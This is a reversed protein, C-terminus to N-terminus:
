QVAPVATRYPWQTLVSRPVEPVLDGGSLVDLVPVTTPGSHRRPGIEVETASGTALRSAVIM